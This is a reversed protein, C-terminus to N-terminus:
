EARMAVMPDVQMARRAPVLAAVVSTLLLALMSVGLAVPDWPSTGALLSRMIRGVAVALPVGVGMALLALQLAQRVVERMLRIPSGGLALRVGFERTRSSVGHALLGYTGVMALLLALSSFVAVLGLIFRPTRLRSALAEDLTRVTGAQVEPDVRALTGDLDRRVTPVSARARVVLITALRPEQAAPWYAAPQVPTGPVLPPIDRVVGVVEYSRKSDEMTVRQGIPNGTGFAVAAMRENIVMVSMSGPVDASVVERGRIVPIGLTEFYGPGVDFWRLTGRRSSGDSGTAVYDGTELGGFLPGASGYSVSAVGPLARVSDAIRAFREVAQTGTEGSTFLASTLIRGRDFSPNWALQTRLSQVLLSTGAILAVALAVEGVVLAKGLRGSTMTGVLRMGGGLTATKRRLTLYAPLASFVGALLISPVGALLASRADFAVEALRPLGPPALLAVPTRLWSALVLGGLTGLTGVILADALVRRSLAGHSAGLAIRVAIDHTQAAGRALFLTAVNSYGVLLVFAAAGLFLLLMPRAQGVVLEKLPRVTLAWHPKGSFHRSKLDRAVTAIQAVAGDVGDPAVRAIALFGPWGRNEEDVPSFPLPKWAEVDDLTPLTADPALVGIVVNPVKDVMLTRGVVTTDGGMREQWFRHSLVVVQDHGAGMETSDFLRGHSTRMSAARFAGVSAIGARVAFPRGDLQVAFGWERAVGAAEVRGVRAAIEEVNPPSAGCWSPDQGELHECLAVVREAAPIPLPRLIISDVLGVATAALSTVLAIITVSASTFSPARLLSRFSAHVDSPFSM